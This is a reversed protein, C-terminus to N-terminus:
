LLGLGMHSLECGWVLFTKIVSKQRLFIYNQSHICPTVNLSSLMFVVQLTIICRNCLSQVEHTVCDKQLFQLEMLLFSSFHIEMLIGKETNHTGKVVAQPLNMVRDKLFEDAADLSIVVEPM